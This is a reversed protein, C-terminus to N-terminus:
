RFRFNFTLLFYQTLTNWQRQMLFNTDGIRQLGTYQNLLDFGSLTLSGKEAQLFFYSINASILPVSVAEDFSRANYNVINARAEFNWKQTPTYRLNGTYSTNLYINNQDQAISFKTETLSIAASLRIAFIDNRRNEIAVDLSHTFNTNINEKQNIFVISRNWNENSTINLDLGLSRIPTSFDLYTNLNVDNDVNIPQSIKVLEDNISQAWRIKDKTYDGGLRFSVSTFSFQDFLTWSTSLRHRQEPALNPNGQIVNLPNVVNRVPILQIVTPMNVTSAYNINIRRGSRYENRYSITPTWFFYTQQQFSSQNLLKNFNNVVAMLQLNFQAKKGVRNLTLSPWFFRQQTNFEPIEIEELESRDNIFGEGRDLGSNEVGIRAGIGMSWSPNLKQLLTPELALFLRDEDNRQIQQLVEESQPNFFRTTNIWDLHNANEQLTSQFETKFQTRDENFKAIYTARSWLYLNDSVDQTTNDLANVAKEQSQTSTLTQTFIDSTRINAGGDFVLRQQKNFSHRMGFNLKHPRDTDTETIDQNQEFTIDSLFNETYVEEVLDKIRRNGLYSLFYRNQSSPNYSLNLGGALAENIGKNNLGFQQNDKNTFGFENINNYSGLLAHQTKPTFRYIKAELRYTEETGAGAALEGFYGKKHDEKLKLNITKERIGDDIGSFLAEETKRDIVQVKSLAKAPLNKTAVKPDEDFFEKGDVLVKVVEEGEAKINGSNDVEVGPLQKLVEEAAAGPRTKFARVDFELTDNKFKIPILEAEVVVEELTSLSLQRDGLDEGSPLPIDLQEYVTQMGVYSFQILYSGARISKIQYEGKANTVGFYKLLSDGPNLLAVTAYNLAQKDQDLVRGSITHQSFGISYLLISLGFALFHKVM